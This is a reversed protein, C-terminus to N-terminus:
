RVRRARLYGSAAMTSVAFNALGVLYITTTAALNMRVTPLTQTLGIGAARAEPDYTNQYFNSSVTASTTNISAQLLSTTTTGAPSFLMTGTVDWDGATLSISTVNAPTTTTLAVSSGTATIFEGLSGAQANDGATTGKIGVTSSPTYLGTTSLTTFAGTNATTNGIAPPQALYSAFGTGSVSGSVSLSTFAGTNPTVAGVPGSFGGTSLVGVDSLQFIESSGANNLVSLNNSNVRITKSNGSQDYMQMTVVDAASIPMQFGTRGGGGFQMLYQWQGTGGATDNNSAYYATGNGGGLTKTAVMGYQHSSRTDVVGLQVDVTQTITSGVIASTNSEMAANFGTGYNAVDILFGTTDSNTGGNRAIFYAADVEGAQTTTGFNQKLVSFTAAFDANLPGVNGTGIPNTTISFAAHGHGAHASSDTLTGYFSSVYYQGLTEGFLSVNVSPTTYAWTGSTTFNPSNYLVSLPLSRDSIGGVVSYLLSTPDASGTQPTLATINKNPM